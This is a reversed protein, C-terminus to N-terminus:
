RGAQWAGIADIPYVLQISNLTLADRIFYLAVLELAIVLILSVWTPWKWACVFGAIMAGVDGVSNVISDGVYGQALAQERYRNIIMDTNEFLEWGVEIGIALFLRVPVSLRPFLLSLLAYFLVGHIVHSLTYWDTLHQSNGDSLVVGHWLKVYGGEYIFPQGMFSLIAAHAILIGFVIAVIWLLRM